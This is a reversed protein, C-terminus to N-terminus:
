FAGVQDWLREIEDASSNDARINIALAV